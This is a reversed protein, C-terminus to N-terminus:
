SLSPEPVDPSCLEIPSSNLIEILGTKLASDDCNEVLQQVLQSTYIQLNALTYDRDDLAESLVDWRG